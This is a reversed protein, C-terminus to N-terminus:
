PKLASLAADPHCYNSAHPVLVGRPARLEFAPGVKKLFGALGGKGADDTKVQKEKVKDDDQRCATPRPNM